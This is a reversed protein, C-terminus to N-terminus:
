ARDAIAAAQLAQAEQLVAIRDLKLDLTDAHQAVAHNLRPLRPKRFGAGEPVSRSGLAAGSHVSRRVPSVGYCDPVFRGMGASADSISGWVCACQILSADKAQTYPRDQPRSLYDKGKWSSQTGRFTKWDFEVEIGAAAFFGEEQAVFDNLGMGKPAVRVKRM